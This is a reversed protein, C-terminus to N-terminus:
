TPLTARRPQLSQKAAPPRHTHTPPTHTHIPPHDKSSHASVTNLLHPPHNAALACRLTACNFSLVSSEPFDVAKFKPHPSWAGTTDAQTSRQAFRTFSRLRWRQWRLVRWICAWRPACLFHQHVAYSRAFRHSSFLCSALSLGLNAAFGGREELDFLPLRCSRGDARKSTM